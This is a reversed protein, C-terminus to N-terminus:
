RSSSICRSGIARTRPSPPSRATSSRLSSRWRGRVMATTRLQYAVEPDAPACAHAEKLCRYAEAERGLAGRYLKARRRWLASRMNPDETLVLQRGIAESAATLDGTEVYLQELLELPERDEPHNTAAHEAAVIAAPFNEEEALQRAEVLEVGTEVVAPPQCRRGASRAPSSRTM